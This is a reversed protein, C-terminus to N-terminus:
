GVTQSMIDRKEATWPCRLLQLRVRPGQAGAVVQLGGGGVRRLDQGAEPGPDGPVEGDGVNHRALLNVHSGVLGCYSDEGGLHDEGKEDDCGDADEDDSDADSDEENWM